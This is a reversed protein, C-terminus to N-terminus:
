LGKLVGSVGELGRNKREKEVSEKSNIFTKCNQLKACYWSFSQYDIKLTNNWGYCHQLNKFNILTEPFINEFAEDKTEKSNSSFFQFFSLFESKSTEVQLVWSLGCSSSRFSGQSFESCSIGSSVDHLIESSSWPIDHYLFSNSFFDWSVGSFTHCNRTPDRHSISSPVRRFTWKDRSFDWSFMLLFEKLFGLLFGPLSVLFLGTTVRLSNWLLEVHSIGTLAKTHLKTFFGLHVTCSFSIKQHNQSHVGPSLTSSVGSFWYIFEQFFRQLYIGPPFKGIFIVSRAKHFGM